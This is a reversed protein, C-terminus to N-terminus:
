PGRPLQPPSASRYPEIRKLMSLLRSIKSRPVPLVKAIPRVPQIAVEDNGAIRIYREPYTMEQQNLSGKLLRYVEPKTPIILTTEHPTLTPRPQNTFNRGCGQCLAGPPLSYTPTHCNIVAPQFGCIRLLTIKNEITLM